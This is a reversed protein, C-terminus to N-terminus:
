SAKAGLSTLLLFVFKLVPVFPVLALLCIGSDGGLATETEKDLDTTKRKAMLHEPWLDRCVVRPFLRM